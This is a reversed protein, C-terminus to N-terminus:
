GFVFSDADLLAADVGTLTISGGSYDVVADSGAATVTLEDFATEDGADIYLLDTGIEFDTITDDGDADEFVFVDAGTGGTMTDNGSGGVLRDDGDGGDMIDDGAQGFLRDNGADGAMSDNGSGGKIIDNGEGGSLTDDGAQGFLRDNGTDGSLSDLGAGGKIRDADDGGSLDDDGRGGFLRDRGAGGSLHDDGDDGSLRDRGSGGTLTDDDSGGYLRDNGRGGELDDDGEGGHLEDRGGNGILRNAAADGSVYDDADGTEVEEIDSFTDYGYGTDQAQDDDLDIHVSTSGHYVVRDHGEGGEYIDDGDEGQFDDDGSTGEYYDDDDVRTYDGPTYSAVLADIDSLDPAGHGEAVETYYGTTADLQYVSWEMGGRKVEVEVVYDGSITYSENPSIPEIELSGDDEVQYISVVATGEENLNIQYVDGDHGHDESGDSDEIDDDESDDTSYTLDATADIIAALGNSDLTGRGEAIEFWYGTDADQKYVTYESRGREAETQIVYGDLLSFTENSDVDEASLEGSSSVEYVQTITGDTDFDFSYLDNSSM